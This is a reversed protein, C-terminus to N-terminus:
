RAPSACAPRTAASNLCNSPWRARCPWIARPLCIRSAEMTGTGFFGLVRASSLAILAPSTGRPRASLGALRERRDTRFSPPWRRARPSVRRMWRMPLRPGLRQRVPCPGCDSSIRPHV